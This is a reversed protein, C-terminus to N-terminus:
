PERGTHTHQTQLVMIPTRIITVLIKIIIIIIIIINNNYIDVYLIYLIINNNTTSNNHMNEGAQPITYVSSMVGTGVQATRPIRISMARTGYQIIEVSNHIM